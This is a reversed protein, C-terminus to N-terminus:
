ISKKIHAITKALFCPVTYLRFLLKGGLVHVTIKIIKNVYFKPIIIKFTHNTQQRFQIM